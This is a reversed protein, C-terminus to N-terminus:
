NPTPNGLNQVQTLDRKEDVKRRRLTFITGIGPNGLLCIWQLGRPLPEIITHRKSSLALEFEEKRFNLFNVCLNEEM